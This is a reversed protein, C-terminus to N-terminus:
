LNWGGAVPLYAGTVYSAEESVLFAVASAMDEVTGLHGMPIDRTPQSVSTEIVGPAVVNVTTGHAAEESALARSYLLVGTKAIQYAAISAKAVLTDSGAYGINIIRGRPSERLLTAARQCVYFTGHLNSNIIGHWTASDVEHLPRKDYDGVNNIVVDLRGFHRYTADVLGTAQGEVTIDAQIATAEVSLAKLDRVTQEAAERSTRYHVAVDMGLEGLRLAMGRGIGQASGTVLAAPRDSM